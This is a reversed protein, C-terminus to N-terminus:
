VSGHADILCFVNSIAPLDNGSHGHLVFHVINGCESSTLCCV